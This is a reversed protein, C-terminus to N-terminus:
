RTAASNHEEPCLLRTVRELDERRNVNYALQPCDVLLRLEEQEDPVLAGTIINLGCPVARVGCVEDGYMYGTGDKRDAPVWISCAPRPDSTFEEEIYRLVAPTLCPIDAGSIFIPGKEELGLVTENMDEIYGSGAANFHPVEHARCWNRTYPTHGTTVVVIEHGASRFADIVYEIMPRGCITVLPKEGLGLREGRGGAMILALM